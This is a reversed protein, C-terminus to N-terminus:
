MAMTVRAKPSIMPTTATLPCLTWSPPPMVSVAPLRPMLATSAGYKGPIPWNLRSLRLGQYQSMKAMTSM